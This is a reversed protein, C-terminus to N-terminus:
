ILVNFNYFDNMPVILNKRQYVINISTISISFIGLMIGVLKFFGIIM